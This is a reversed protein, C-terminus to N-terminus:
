ERHLALIVKIPLSHTEDVAELLGALGPGDGPKEATRILLPARVLPHVKSWGHLDWGHAPVGLSPIPPEKEEEKSFRFQTKQSKKFNLQNAELQNSIPEKINLTKHLNTHAQETKWDSPQNESPKLLHCCHIIEPNVKFM